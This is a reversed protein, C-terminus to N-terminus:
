CSDKYKKKFEDPPIMRGAEMCAAYWARWEGWIFTPEGNAFIKMSKARKLVEAQQDDMDMDFTVEAM